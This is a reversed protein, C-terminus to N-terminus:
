QAGGIVATNRRPTNQFRAEPRAANMARTEPVNSPMEM